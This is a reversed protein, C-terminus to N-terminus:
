AGAGAGAAARPQRPRTRRVAPLLGKVYSTLWGSPNRVGQAACLPRKLRQLNQNQFLM